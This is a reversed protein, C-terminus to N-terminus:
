VFDDVDVGYYVFQFFVGYFGVCCGFVAQFYECLIYGGFLCFVVNLNIIDLWVVKCGVLCCGDLYVFMWEIIKNYLM